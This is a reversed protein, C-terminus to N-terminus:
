AFLETLFTLPESSLFLATFTYNNARSPSQAEKLLTAIVETTGQAEFKLVNINSQKLRNLSDTWEELQQTRKQALATLKQAPTNKDASLSELQALQAGQWSLANRLPQQNIQATPKFRPQVIANPKTFKDTQLSQKKGTRRAVMGLESINVVDFLGKTAQAFNALSNEAIMWGLAYLPGTPKHKDNVDLLKARLTEIAIDPSLHHGSEVQNGVQYQYPHVCVIQGKCMLSELEARLHLLNEAETSLPHRALEVKSALTKVRNASENMKGAVQNLVTESQTQIAQTSDPWQYSANQWSM